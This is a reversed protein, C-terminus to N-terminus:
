QVRAWPYRYLGTCAQIREILLISCPLRDFFLPFRLIEAIRTESRVFSELSCSVIDPGEKKSADRSHLHQLTTNTGVIWDMWDMWDLVAGREGGSFYHSGQALLPPLATTGREARGLSGVCGGM